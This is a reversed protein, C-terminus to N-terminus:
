TAFIGPIEGVYEADTLRMVIGMHENLSWPSVYSKLLMDSWKLAYVYHLCNTAQFHEVTAYISDRAIYVHTYRTNYMLQFSFM